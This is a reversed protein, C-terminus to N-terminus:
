VALNVQRLLEVQEPTGHPCPGPARRVVFPVLTSTPIAVVPIHRSPKLGAKSLEGCQSWRVAKDCTARVVRPVTERAGVLLIMNWPLKLAKVM